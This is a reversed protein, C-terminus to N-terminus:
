SAPCIAHHELTLRHFEEASYARLGADHFLWMTEIGAALILRSCQWCSPPGSPVAVGDVAKVHLMSADKASLGAKLLVSTEAHVCLKGCHERCQASGDCAYTGPQRNWGIAVVERHPHWIVAGRKSKVCSSLMAMKTALQLAAEPHEIRIAVLEALEKHRGVPVVRALIEAHGRGSRGEDLFPRGLRLLLGGGRPTTPPSTRGSYPGIAFASYCSQWLKIPRAKLDEAKSGSRPIKM